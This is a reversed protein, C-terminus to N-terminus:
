LLLVFLSWDFNDATMDRPLFMSCDLLKVHSSLLLYFIM